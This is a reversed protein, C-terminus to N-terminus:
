QCTSGDLVVHCLQPSQKVEDHGIQEIRVLQEVFPEGLINFSVTLVLLLQILNFNLTKMGNQFWEHQTTDLLVDLMFDSLFVLMLSQTLHGLSLLQEVFRDFFFQIYLLQEFHEFRLCLHLIQHVQHHLESLDAVMRFEKLSSRCSGGKGELFNVVISAVNGDSCTIHFKDGM